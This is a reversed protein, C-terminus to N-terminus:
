ACTPCREALSLYLPYGCDVAACVRETELNHKLRFLGELGNARQPNVAVTTPRVTDVPITPTHHHTSPSLVSVKSSTPEAGPPALSRPSILKIQLKYTSNSHLGSVRYRLLPVSYRLQGPRSGTKPLDVCLVSARRATIETAASRTPTCHATM